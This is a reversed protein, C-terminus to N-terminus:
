AVSRWINFIIILFSSSLLLESYIFLYYSIILTIIIFIHRQRAARKTATWKRACHGGASAVKMRLRVCGGRLRRANSHFIGGRTRQLPYGAPINISSPNKKEQTTNGVKRGGQTWRADTM